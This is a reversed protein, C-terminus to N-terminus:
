PVFMRQIEVDVKGIDNASLKGIKKVIRSKDIARMQFIM